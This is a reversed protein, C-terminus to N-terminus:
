FYFPVLVYFYSASLLFRYTYLFITWRVLLWTIFNDSLLQVWPHSSFPLTILIYGNGAIELLRQCSLLSLMCGAVSWRLDSMLGCTDVERVPQKVFQKPVPPPSSSIKGFGQRLTRGWNIFTLLHFLVSIQYTKGAKRISANAVHQLGCAYFHFVPFNINDTSRWSTLQAIEAQPNPM